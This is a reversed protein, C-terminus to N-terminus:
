LEQHQLRRVERKVMCSNHLCVLMAALHHSPRCPLGAKSRLKARFLHELTLAAHISHRMCAISLIKVTVRAPARGTRVVSAALLALLLSPLAAFAEAPLSMRWNSASLQRLHDKRDVSLYCGIGICECVLCNILPAM